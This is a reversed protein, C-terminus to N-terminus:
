RSKRGNATLVEILHQERYSEAFPLVIIRQAPIADGYQPFIFQVKSLHRSLLRWKALDSPLVVCENARSWTYRGPPLPADKIAEVESLLELFQQRFRAVDSKRTLAIPSKPLFLYAECRM